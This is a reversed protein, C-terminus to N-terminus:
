PSTVIVVAISGSPMTEITGDTTISIGISAPPGPAVLPVPVFAGTACSATAFSFTQSPDWNGAPLQQNARVYHVANPLLGDWTFSTTASSFPGAGLFTGPQWDNNALSLDLWQQQSGPANGSWSFSVRVTGPIATSCTQSITLLSVAADATSRPGLLAGASLIIAILMTAILRFKM